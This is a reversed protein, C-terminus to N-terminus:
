SANGTGPPSTLFPHSPGWVQAVDRALRRREAAGLAARAMAADGGSARLARNWVRRVSAASWPLVAGALWRRLDSPLADFECMGEAGLRRRLATACNRRSM